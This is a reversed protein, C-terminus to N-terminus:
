PDTYRTVHSRSRGSPVGCSILRPCAFFSRLGRFTRVFLAAGRLPTTLFFIAQGAPALPKEEPAGGPRSARRATSRPSREHRASGRSIKQSAGEPGPCVPPREVCATAGRQRFLHDRTKPFSFQRLTQGSPVGGSILRPCVRTLAHPGRLTRAFCAAGRLPTTLFIGHLTSVPTRNEEPAGGPRSARHAASRPSREHRAPGRSIKQSVGEPGPWPRRRSNPSLM